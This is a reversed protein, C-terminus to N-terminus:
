ISKNNKLTDFAAQLTKPYHDRGGAYQSRLEDLLPQYFKHAGRIFITACYKEFADNKIKQQEFERDDVDSIDSYLQNYESTNEVFDALFEKGSLGVVINRAQRFRELYTVLDENENMRINVLRAQAEILTMYPYIARMPTHMLIEIHQLLKLVDNEIESRFNPLEKLEAQMASSCYNEFIFAYARRWNNEFTNKKKIWVDLEATYLLENERIEVMQEEEIKAVVPKLSPREGKADFDFKVKDKISKAIYYGGTFSSQVNITIKELINDFTKIQKERGSEHPRFLYDGKHYNGSNGRDPRKFFTKKRERNGGRNRAQSM